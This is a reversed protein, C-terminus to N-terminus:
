PTAEATKRFKDCYEGPLCPGGTYGCAYGGRGGDTRQSKVTIRLNCGAAIHGPHHSKDEDSM